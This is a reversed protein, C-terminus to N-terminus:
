FRHEVEGEGAPIDVVQLLRFKLLQTFAGKVDECRLGPAIEKSGDALESKRLLTQLVRDSQEFLRSLIALRASENGVAARAGQYQVILPEIGDQLTEVVEGAGFPPFEEVFRTIAAEYASLAEDIMMKQENSSTGTFPSVPLAAYAESVVKARDLATLFESPVTAAGVGSGGTQISKEIHVM